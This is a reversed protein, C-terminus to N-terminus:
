IILDRLIKRGGGPLRAMGNRVLGLVSPERPMLYCPM